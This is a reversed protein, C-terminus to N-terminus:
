VHWQHKPQYSYYIKQKEKFYKFGLDILKDLLSSYSLGSVNWLKPYMSISTFGPITNIENLYIRKKDLLFDVRGLGRCDITKYALIAIKKIKEKIEKNIKAPIIIKSKGNIYKAEYDYFENSPIIEGPCSAIPFENGLISIEIERAKKVAKEILIKQDYKGALNIAKILNKQNHAKSIGVSSGANAPKVFCPFKIKEKIKKILLIQNKQWENKFFWIFDVIPLKYKQWIIKQMIKDIGLASGLIGAGVYPKNITELFGQISGDEGFPGHLVPFFIDISSLFGPVFEGKNTAEGKLLKKAMQGKLWHGKKDVGILVIKYKNKDLARIVSRASVLSVEHEFSRGGFLVGITKKKM